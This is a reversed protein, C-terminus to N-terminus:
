EHKFCCRNGYRCSGYKSWNACPKSRWKPPREVKKLENEGHAFQCKNGYPCVGMKMFSACLETKYLQTNINAPGSSTQKASFGNVGEAHQQQQQKHLPQQSQQQSTTPISPSAVNTPIFTSPIHQQHQLQQEFNFLEEQDNPITFQVPPHPRHHHQQPQAPQQGVFNFSTDDEYVRPGVLTNYMSSNFSDIALSPSTSPLPAATGFGASVNAQGLSTFLPPSISANSTNWTPNQTTYIGSGNFLNPQSHQQGFFSQAPTLQQPKPQKTYVTNSIVSDNTSTQWLDELLDGQLDILDSSSSSTSSATLSSSMSHQKTFPHHHQAQQNFPQQKGVMIADFTAFSPSANSSGVNANNLITSM